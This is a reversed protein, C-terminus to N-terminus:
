PHIQHGKGARRDGEAHGCHETNNQARKKVRDRGPLKANLGEGRATVHNTM